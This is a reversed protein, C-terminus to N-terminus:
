AQFVSLKHFNLVECTLYTKILSARESKLVYIRPNMPIHFYFVVGIVIYFFPYYVSLNHKIIIKFTM